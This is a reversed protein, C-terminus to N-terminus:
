RFVGIHVYACDGLGANNTSYTRLNIQTTSWTVDAGVMLFSADAPKRATGVVAYDTDPMATSFNLTYVGLGNDTISSVNGSNRISVSGTGDFNVWARAAYSPASGSATSLSTATTASGASSASTAATATAANGSINIAYTDASVKAPTVANAAIKSTTVSNDVLVASAAATVFATTAVQTTSTGATATPATPVGTLAANNITPANSVFATTAIQTNSTGSAATPATPTGGFAPSNADAKSSVASQIANFENDLETGKIIKSTNGSPLSDKITFNTIKNYDAM